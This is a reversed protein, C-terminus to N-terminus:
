QVFQCNLDFLYLEIIHATSNKSCSNIAYGKQFSFYTEIKLAELVGEFAVM